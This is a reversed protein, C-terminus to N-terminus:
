PKRRLLLYQDQRRHIITEYGASGEMSTQYCYGGDAHDPNDIADHFAVIGGSKLRPLWLRCDTLVDSHNGDVHLFDIVLDEPVIASAEESTMKYFTITDGFRELVQQLYPWAKDFYWLMPDVSIVNAGKQEAVLGLATLTKGGYSGIEVITGGQPVVELAYQVLLLLEGHYYTRHSDIVGQDWGWAKDAEDAIQEILTM